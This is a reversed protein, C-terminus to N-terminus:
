RHLELGLPEHKPREREVVEVVDGAEHGVGLRHAVDARASRPRSFLCALREIPHDPGELVLSEAVEAYLALLVSDEDSTRAEVDPIRGIPRDRSQVLGVARDLDLDGVEEPTLVPSLSKRGLGRGGDAVPRESLEAELSQDCEDIGAVDARDSDSPLEPM